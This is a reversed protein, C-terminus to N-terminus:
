PAFYGVVDIILDTPNSGLVSIAGGTGAPVIAANAIVYGDTSNLTSVAPFPEGTPWASLFGLAGQPVVTMNLAFAQAAAPIGCPSSQIPFNRSTNAALSPPGFPALFPQTSRTDAVRCPTVAYFQLGGTVPAAFKGNIDIILDTNNSALIDIDGGSGAPLIASNALTTGDPSNLTSVTPFPQGAPWTSLFGLTGPPVVTMNLSYASESGSLCPSTAIPFDRTVNASLRPPGFAGTFPQTTRTDAIRCPTVPYFELGSTAPPAFYGNIDIILDTPNSALVTIGGSTGAPVIAANAIVSGDTSNLTSVGPYSDGAPWASLFGVPGSPVVTFNLSYAQATSPISCESSLVPFTRSVNASLSPPGFADTFPQSPRTDAIRCPTLPYFQLPVPTTFSWTASPATGFANRAVVYWYYVTARALTGPSYTTATTNVVFPPFPSTGFYVDYSTAGAAADWNLSATVSVGVARNVPSTLIPVAPGGGLVLTTFSWPPGSATTGNDNRAVVYWYYTVGLALIGPAYSTGTTNTVMSPTSSTGFYVDYSTAGSAANWTLTPTTTISSAGNAPATLVPPGPPVGAVPTLLYGHSNTGSAVIQGLDNIAYPYEIYVGSPLTMLSTLNEMVGSSYLFALTSEPPAATSWGVVQGSNNIAFAESQGGGAGGGPLVGLDMMSGGSYLFAHAAACSPIECAASGAVQGSDNIGSPVTESRGPVIGLDFMIGGSYLFADAAQIDSGRSAGVVEGSRNIGAAGSSLDGPLVGLDDLTGASWLVAHINASLVAYGVIQGSDNFAHPVIGNVDITTGSIYNYLVVQNGGEAYTITALIQGSNNIGIATGAATGGLYGLDVITGSTYLLVHGAANTGVVQGLNNIGTPTVGVGLDIATYTQGSASAAVMVLLSTLRSVSKFGL